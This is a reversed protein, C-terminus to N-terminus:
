RATAKRGIREHSRLAQLSARMEVKARAVKRRHWTVLAALNVLSIVLAISLQGADAMCLADYAVKGVLRGLAAYPNQNPSQYPESCGEAGDSFAVSILAAGFVVPAIFSTLVYSGDGKGVFWRTQEFYAVKIPTVRDIEQQKKREAVAESAARREALARQREDLQQQRRAREAEIAEEQDVIERARSLQEKTYRKEPV